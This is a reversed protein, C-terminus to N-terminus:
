CAICAPGNSEETYGALAICAPGHYASSSIATISLYQLAPRGAQEGEAMGTVIGSSISSHQISGQQRAQAQLGSGSCQVDAM